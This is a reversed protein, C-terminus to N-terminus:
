TMSNSISSNAYSASMYYSLIFSQVLSYVYLIISVISNAAPLHLLQCISLCLPSFQTAPVCAHLSTQVLATVYCQRGLSM